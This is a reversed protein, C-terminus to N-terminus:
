RWSFKRLVGIPPRKPANISRFGRWHKPKMKASYAPTRSPRCYGVDFQCGALAQPRISEM